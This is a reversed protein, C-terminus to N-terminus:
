RIKHELARREEKSQKVLTEYSRHLDTYKSHLDILDIDELRAVSDIKASSVEPHTKCCCNIM